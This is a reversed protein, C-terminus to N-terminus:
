GARAYVGARLKHANTAPERASQREVVHLARSALRRLVWQPVTAMIKNRRQDRHHTNLPLEVRSVDRQVKYEAVL